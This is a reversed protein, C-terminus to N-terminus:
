LNMLRVGFELSSFSASTNLNFSFVKDTGIGSKYNGYGVGAGIANPLALFLLWKNKSNYALGAGVSTSAGLSFNEYSGWGGSLGLNGQGYVSFSKGLPIYKQRFVNAGINYSEFQTTAGIKRKWYDFSINAGQVVNEKIAKAVSPTIHFSTIKQVQLNDNNREYRFGAGVGYLKTGKPIQAFSSIALASCLCFLFIKKM